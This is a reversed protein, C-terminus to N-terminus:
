WFEVFVKAPEVVRVELLTNKPEFININKRFFSGFHFSGIDARLQIGERMGRGRSGPLIDFSEFYSFIIFNLPVRM